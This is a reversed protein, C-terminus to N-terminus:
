NPNGYIEIQEKCKYVRSKLESRSVKRGDIYFYILRQNTKPKIVKLPLSRKNRFHPLQVLDGGSVVYNNLGKLRHSIELYNSNLTFPENNIIIRM